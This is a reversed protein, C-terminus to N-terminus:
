QEAEYEEKRQQDINQNAAEPGGCPPRLWASPSWLVQDRHGTGSNQGRRPDCVWVCVRMGFVVRVCVHWVSWVCRADVCGAGVWMRVCVLAGGDPVRGRIGRGRVRGRVSM